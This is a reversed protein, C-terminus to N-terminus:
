KLIEKLEETVIIKSSFKLTEPSTGGRNEFPYKNYIMTYLVVGIAWIDWSNKM